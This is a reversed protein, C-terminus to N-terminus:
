LCNHALLNEFNCARSALAWFLLFSGARSIYYPVSFQVQTNSVDSMKTTSDFVQSSGRSLSYKNYIDIIKGKRETISILCM